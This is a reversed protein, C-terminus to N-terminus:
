AAEPQRRASRRLVVGWGLMGAGVLMLPIVLFGTFPLGDSSSNASVQRAPQTARAPASGGGGLTEGQTKGGVSNEGPYQAAGASGGTASGSIAFSTASGAFVIGTALVIVVAM